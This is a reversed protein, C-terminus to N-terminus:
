LECLCEVTNHQIEAVSQPSVRYKLFILLAIVGCQSEVQGPKVQESYYNNYM